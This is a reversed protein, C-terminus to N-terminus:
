IVTKLSLLLAFSIMCVSYSCINKLIWSTGLIVGWSLKWLYFYSTSLPRSTISIIIILIKTKFEKGKILNDKMMCAYALYNQWNSLNKEQNLFWWKHIFNNGKSLIYIFLEFRIVGSYPYIDSYYYRYFLWSIANFVAPGFFILSLSFYVNSGM